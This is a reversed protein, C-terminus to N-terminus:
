FNEARPRHARESRCTGYLPANTKRRSQLTDILRHCYKHAPGYKAQYYGRLAPKEDSLGTTEMTELFGKISTLPTRLEHSVNLVFDTKIKELRKMQTIDNFIITIEERSPLFTASCLFISDDIEIEAIHNEKTTRVTKVIENLKPMRLREWYPKGQILDIGTITKLSANAFIVKDERDLVILGENLSTMISQLEEKQRSLERFLEETRDLMGNFSEALDKIEDNRKFFIRAHFNHGVAKQLASSLEKLPISISRSFLFACILALLDIILAIIIIKEILKNTASAIEKLPASVRLAYITKEDRVIPIAVYLMEQHLTASSRAAIGRVGAMAQLVEVRTRHNEMRAPEDVSDALVIGNPAIITIRAQVTKGLGKVHSDLKANNGATVMPTIDGQLAYALDTLM